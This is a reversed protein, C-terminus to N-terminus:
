NSVHMSAAVFIYTGLTILASTRIGIPKGRVQRECGVIAGCLLAAGISPWDFPAITLFTELKM